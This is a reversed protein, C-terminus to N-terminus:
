PTANKEATWTKEQFIDKKSTFDFLVAHSYLHGLFNFTRSYYERIKKIIKEVAQRM